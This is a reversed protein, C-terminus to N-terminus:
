RNSERGLRKVRRDVESGMRPLRGSSPWGSPVLPGQGPRGHARVLWLVPPSLEM